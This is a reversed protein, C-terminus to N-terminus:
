KPSIVPFLIDFSLSSLLLFIIIGQVVLESTFATQGAKNSAVCTYNGAHEESVSDIGLVSTKKGFAGINLNLIENIQKQNLFWAFKIPM